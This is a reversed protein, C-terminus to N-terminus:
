IATIDLLTSFWTPKGLSREFELVKRVVGSGEALGCAEYKSSHTVSETITPFEIQGTEM